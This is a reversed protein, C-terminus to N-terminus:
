AKASKDLMKKKIEIFQRVSCPFLIAKAGARLLADRCDIAKIQNKYWAVMSGGSIVVYLTTM